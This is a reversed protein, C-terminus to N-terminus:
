AMGPVLDLRPTDRVGPVARVRNVLQLFDPVAERRGVVSAAAKTRTVSLYIVFSRNIVNIPLPGLPGIDQLVSPHIEKRGDMWRDTHGGGVKEIRLNGNFLM